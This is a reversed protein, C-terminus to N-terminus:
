VSIARHDETRILAHRNSLLDLAKPTRLLIETLFPSASFLTVLIEIVRPNKELEPFLTPGYSELFRELNILSRDPDAASGLAPLLFSYIASLGQQNRSEMRRLVTWATKWDAFGFETLYSQATSEDHLATLFQSAEEMKLM